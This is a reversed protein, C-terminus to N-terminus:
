EKLWALAEEETDFLRINDRKTAKLMFDLLVRTYRDVGVTASKGLRPDSNLDFFAKRM